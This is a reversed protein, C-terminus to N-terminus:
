LRTDNDIIFYRLTRDVETFLNRLSKITFIYTKELENLLFRFAVNFTKNTSNVSVIHLFPMNFKNTKYTCDLLIVDPHEKLMNISYPHSFFLTALRGDSDARM